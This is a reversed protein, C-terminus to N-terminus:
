PDLPEMSNIQLSQISPRMAIDEASIRKLSLYPVLGMERQCRETFGADTIYRSQSEDTTILVPKDFPISYRYLIRVANRLNTTTHRAHPEILIAAAPIGLKEILYRKMEFAECYRTQAPHVFGGSVLLFPAKGQRYREVALALREKGKESLPTNLDGPGAGPVIIASYPYDSWKIHAVAAYAAANEGKEMPEFRGAEDRHNLELLALAMQLSPVFFPDHKHISKRVRVAASHVQQGFEKSHPDYSIGDIRSYLPAHGEGYVELVHNLAQAEDAWAQALLEDGPKDRYLEFVGSERLQRDVLMRVAAKQRYLSILEAQVAKIEEDSWLLPAIYCSADDGCSKIGKDLTRLSDSDLKGLAPDSDIEARASKDRQVTALLYFIKEEVPHELSLPRHSPQSIPLSQGFATAVALALFLFIRLM